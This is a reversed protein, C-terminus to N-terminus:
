IHSCWLTGLVLTAADVRRDAAARHHSLVSITRLMDGSKLVKGIEKSM